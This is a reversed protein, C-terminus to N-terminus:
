ATTSIVKFNIPLLCKCLMIARYLAIKGYSSRSAFASWLICSTTRGPCVKAKVSNWPPMETQIYIVPLCFLSHSYQSRQSRATHDSNCLLHYQVVLVFLECANQCRQATRVRFMIASAKEAFSHYEFGLSVAPSSRRSMM